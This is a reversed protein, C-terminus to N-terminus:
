FILSYFFSREGLYTSAGTLIFLAKLADLMAHVSLIHGSLLLLAILISPLNLSRNSATLRSGYHRNTRDFLTFTSTKQPSCHFYSTFTSSFNYFHYFSLFSLSLSSFITQITSSIYSHNLQLHEISLSLWEIINQLKHFFYKLFLYEFKIENDNQSLIMKDKTIIVNNLFNKMLCVISNTSTESEVFTFKDIIMLVHHIFSSAIINSFLARFQKRVDLSFLLKNIKKFCLFWYINNLFTHFNLCYYILFTKHLFYLFNKYLFKNIRLFSIHFITFFSLSFFSYRLINFKSKNKTNQRLLNMTVSRNLCKKHKYEYEKVRKLLLIQCYFVHTNSFKYKNTKAQVFVISLTNSKNQQANDNHHHNYKVSNFIFNKFNVCKLICKHQRSYHSFNYFYYFKVFEKDGTRKHNFRKHKLVIIIISLINKIINEVSKIKRIKVNKRWKLRAKNLSSFKLKKCIEINREQIKLAM